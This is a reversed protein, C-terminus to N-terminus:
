NFRLNVEFSVLYMKFRRLTSTLISSKYGKQNFNSFKSFKKVSNSQKSRLTFTTQPWKLNLQVSSHTNISSEPTQIVQNVTRIYTSCVTYQPVVTNLRYLIFKLWITKEDHWFLSEVSASYIFCKLWSAQTLFVSSEISFRHWMIIVRFSWVDSNIMFM